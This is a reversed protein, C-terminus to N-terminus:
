PGPDLQAALRVCDAASTLHLKGIIAARHSEVTRPSIALREAIEASTMARGVLDFIELERRTLLAEVQARQPRNFTREGAPAAAATLARVRQVRAVIAGALEAPDFPKEIYDDAGSNMGRMRPPRGALATLFIFPTAAMSPTSRVMSLLELGDTEPMMLDSVVVDPRSREIAALGQTADEAVIVEFGDLELILRTNERSPPDDEVLVVRIRDAM